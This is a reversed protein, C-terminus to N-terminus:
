SSASFDSSTASYYSNIRLILSTANTPFPKLSPAISVGTQNSSIILVPEALMVLKPGSLSNVYAKISKQTSLGNPDNSAMDDEDRISDISVGNSTDLYTADIMTKESLAETGGITSVDNQGQGAAVNSIKRGLANLGANTPYIGGNSLLRFNAGNYLFQYIQNGVILGSVPDSGDWTKIDRTYADVKLTAAGGTNGNAADIKVRIIMGDTLGTVTPSMVVEYADASGTDVAYTFGGSQVNLSSSGASLSNLFESTPRLEVVDGANFAFASAAVNGINEQARAITFVDASRATV